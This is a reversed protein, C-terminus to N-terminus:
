EVVIKYTEGAGNVTLQLIYAGPTDPMIIEAVSAHVTKKVVLNGTPGFLQIVPSGSEGAPIGTTVRISQGRQVPNPYVASKIAAGNIVTPCTTRTVNQQTALSRGSLTATYEASGGSLRIYGKTESQEVGDKFWKYDTFEYGGNTAPDNNVALVDAWRQVFIDSPLSKTATFVYTQTQGDVATVVVTQPQNAYLTMPSAPMSSAFGSITIELFVSEDDSDCNIPYVVDTGSVDLPETGNIRANAIDANIRNDTPNIVAPCTKLTAGNQTTLVATYEVTTSLTGTPDNFFVNAGPQKVNNKYWEFATFIYGGNTTFDNNVAIVDLERSAFISSPLRKEVVFTYTREQNDVSTVTIEQPVNAHLIIPNNLSSEAFDSITIELFVSEAESDCDIPYVFNLGTVDFTETGNIKVNAIDANIRNDTPNIVAPCTKLTAGNQTTLVATYEVTTSLTGTPDNFFVNAGPQKVDNKYWEFATFIYGGNTTFDNNVAIVDLERSAFISSPLRKEVLFSYTKAPQDDETKVTVTESQNAYLMMSTAPTCDEIFGGLIIEVYASEDNSGCPISYMFENGVISNNIDVAAGNVKIGLIENTILNNEKARFMVEREAMGVRLTLRRWDDSAFAYVANDVISVREGFDASWTIAEGDHTKDNLKFISRVDDVTETANAFQLPVASLASHLRTDANDSEALLHLQPYYGESLLWRDGGFGSLEGKLLESTPLAEIGNVVDITALGVIQKDLYCNSFTLSVVNEPVFGVFGGSLSESIVTSAAFCSNFSVNASYDSSQRYFSGVFSGVNENGKVAGVAYCGTSSISNAFIDILGVFGGVYRNGEVTGSAYCDVINSDSSIQGAFGGVSEDGKVPGVAYCGSISNSQSVSGFFGGVNVRGEVLGEAGCREITLNRGNIAYGIFGGVGYTSSTIGTTSGTSRCDSISLSNPSSTNCYAIFGGINYGGTASVDSLCGTIKVTGVTISGAFGGIGSSFQGAISGKAQCDTIDLVITGLSTSGVNGLFGGSYSGVTNGTATTQVNSYCRSIYNNGTGIFAIFGGAVTGRIVGESSCDVITVGTAYAILGGTHEANNSIEGSFGSNKVVINSAEGILGGCRKNVWWFYGQAFCNDIITNEAKAILAGASADIDGIQFSKMTVNKIVAGDNTFGFLGGMSASEDDIWGDTISLHHITKGAGDFTGRFPKASTGIPLSWALINGYGDKGFLDIDDGLQFYADASWDADEDRVLKALGVLEEPTSIIYAKEPTSGDRGATLNEPRFDEAHYTWWHEYDDQAMVNESTLALIFGTLILINLIYYKKM